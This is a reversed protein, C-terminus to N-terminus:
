SECSAAEPDPDDIAEFPSFGFISKQSKQEERKVSGEARNRLSRGFSSVVEDESWRAIVSEMSCRCKYDQTSGRICQTV